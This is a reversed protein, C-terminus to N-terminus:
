ATRFTEQFGREPTYPPQWGIAARIASSDVELSGTLREVSYTDIGVSRGLMSGAADGAVGLGRLVWSPVPLLRVRRGSAQGLLRLLGPTSFPPGDAVHFVRRSAGPHQLCKELADTLNGVYVFSRSNQIAGFPLPWGTRLLRLLRLMNGPNDAGYVLTPRLICWDPRGGALREQLALEAAHKSRGYRTDPYCPTKESVPASALTCVAGISSVFVLRRVSGAQRVAEALRATGATNVRRYDEETRDQAIQHALAALHIVFDVGELAAGWDTEPGIEGVGHWEVQAPFAAPPERRATARVMYGREVLLPCLSRGVFGTAGTVLVRNM